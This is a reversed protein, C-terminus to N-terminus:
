KIIGELWEMFKKECFSKALELSDVYEYCVYWKNMDFIIYDILKNNVWFSYGKGLNCIDDKWEFNIKM